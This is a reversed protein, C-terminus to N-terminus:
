LPKSQVVLYNSDSPKSFLHSLIINYNKISSIIYTSLV